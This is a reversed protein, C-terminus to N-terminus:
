QQNDSIFSYSQWTLLSCIRRCFSVKSMIDGFETSVLAGNEDGAQAEAILKAERLKNVSQMVMADVREEWSQNESKGLAYHSPNKQIRQFL